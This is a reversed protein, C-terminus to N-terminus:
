GAKSEIELGTRDEFPKLQLEGMEFGERREERREEGRRAVVVEAVAKAENKTAVRRRRSARRDRAVTVDLRRVGGVEGGIRCARADLPTSHLPTSHLPTSHLPTSHLPTSYLTYTACTHQRTICVLSM